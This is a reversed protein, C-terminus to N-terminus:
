PEIKEFICRIYEFEGVINAYTIEDGDPAGIELYQITGDADTIEYYYTWLDGKANPMGFTESFEAVSKNKELFEEVDSVSITRDMSTFEYPWREIPRVKKGLKLDSFVLLGIDDPYKASDDHWFACYEDATYFFVRNLGVNEESFDDEYILEFYVWYYKDECVVPFTTYAISKFKGDQNEYDGGLLGDFRIDTKANPYISLLKEIQQDLDADRDIVTQSFLSKLATPDEHELASFFANVKEQYIKEESLRKYSGCGAFILLASTLLIFACTLRRFTKM